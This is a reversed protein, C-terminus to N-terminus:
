SVGRTEIGRFRLHDDCCKAFNVTSGTSEGVPLAVGPFGHDRKLSGGLYLLFQGRVARSYQGYTVVLRRAYPVGDRASRQVNKTSM